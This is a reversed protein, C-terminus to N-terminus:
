RCPFGRGENPKFKKRFAGATYVLAPIAANAGITYDVEVGSGKLVFKNAAMANEGKIRCELHTARRRGRETSYNQSRDLPTLYNM